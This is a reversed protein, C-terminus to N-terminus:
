GLHRIHAHCAETDDMVHDGAFFAQQQVGKMSLQQLWSYLYATEVNVVLEM